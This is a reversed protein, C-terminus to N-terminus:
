EYLSLLTEAIEKMPLLEVAGGIGGKETLAAWNQVPILQNDCGDNLIAKLADVSSDYVGVAKIAKTLLAIRGTLDDLEDAQDRYEAYDPVPILSNTTLTPYV